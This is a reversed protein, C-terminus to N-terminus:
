RASGVLAPTCIRRVAEHDCVVCFPSDPEAPVFILREGCMSCHTWCHNCFDDDGQDYFHEAYQTCKPYRKDRYNGCPVYGLGRCPGCEEERCRRARCGPDECPEAPAHFSDPHWRTSGKGDCTFCKRALPPADSNPLAARERAERQERLEALAADVEQQVPSPYGASM